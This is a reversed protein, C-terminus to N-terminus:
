QRMKRPVSSGPYCMGRSSESEKECAILFKLFDMMLPGFDQRGRQSLLWVCYAQKAKDKSTRLDHYTLGEKGYKGTEMITLGWEWTSAIGVPMGDAKYGKSSVDSPLVPRQKMAPSSPSPSDPARRKSADTMSMGSNLPSSLLEFESQDGDGEPSETSIAVRLLDLTGDKRAASVLARVHSIQEASFSSMISDLFRLPRHQSRQDVLQSLTPSKLMGQEAKESLDPDLHGQLCWRGKVRFSEWNNPDVEAGEELPKRTLVFRSGIFRDPHDRKIQAAKKGYHIRVANQKSLITEWEARKGEDVMQQLGDPHNSHHLEKSMKKKLYEAILVEYTDHQLHHCLDECEVVSLVESIRPRAPAPEGAEADHLEQEHSRKRSEASDSAEVAKEVLPPVIEKMIEVFDDQKMAAPRWYSMPGDKGTVRRRIPGYSSSSNDGGNSPVHPVSEEAPTPVAPSDDFIPQSPHDGSESMPAHASAPADESTAATPAVVPASESDGVEPQEESVSSPDEMTPYSQSVLDLFQQSRINGQEILDKIGLMEAQPCSLVVKEENTAPRIQEPACRIVQRRHLLVFNRGVKGLIIATGYWKGGTQLKGQVWKQNRWYAVLDGPVFEQAVRPRALLAVRLARDDQMQILATRATTRMAQAKAIGQETLSATASVINLPESLLDEPIHPNKGFVMQHPSYGHVQLMQNKIHAHVVCQLWEEKSSPSHECIIKDLTRSFWGGHSEVKGLQWHAGAAIPRVVTGQLETPVSMNEGLNTRAPDLLLEKPPGMWAVWHEEFLKRLLTSTEQEFFPIMRQFGSAYDVLNLAPVKQNAKWGQLYKIDLGVQQNVESIRRPQAPLPVTPRVQSKCFDCSFDKALRLVQESAQSHKLVRVLDHNPPHGLNRHLKSLVARLEDDSKTHEQAVADIQDWAHAPVTDDVVLPAESTPEVAHRYAPVTSLVAEVFAPPYVSAYKSVSAVGPWSGAVVDHDAHEGDGPCLKSLEQMDAHSVLLRTSKRIFKESGPLRMGYRCMHLKCTYHKRCLSQIEAYSWTKAGTPHEFLARGGRAVQERFLKCCWRIFSRSRAVRVLYEHRDWKTSNLHFWGGEDTCPPCLVLLEPPNEDLAREVRIRDARTSLDYGTKLDYSAADMGLDHAYKAFRPPSFVEQVLCVKAKSRSSLVEQCTKVQSLLQRSQKLTPKWCEHLTSSCDSSPFRQDTHFFKTIIHGSNAPLPTITQKQCVPHEVEHSILVQKTIGDVVVRRNIKNWAPGASSVWPVLQSGSDEQVWCFVDPKVLDSSEPSPPHDSSECQPSEVSPAIPEHCTGEPTEPTCENHGESMMVETFEPQSPAPRSSRDMLNVIYQGASNSKLPVITGDFIQLEDRHFDLSARLSKLATRSILLPAAGNVIAARIMGKRGALWVPLCVSQTSTEVHGNGFRFQHVESFPSPITVGQQHWISTFEKLTDRGIITRGCGSDLVGFGPSSILMVEHPITESEDNYNVKRRLLDMMSLKEGAAAVFEIDTEAEVMAAGSPASTTSSKGAGKPPFKCEKAWHGKRGCRNCTTSKKLEEIEVRFSRRVDRAKQFQRSKQLKNLEQRRDKWTAALVEAVDDENFTEDTATEDTHLEHDMLFQHVDEFEQELDPQLDESPGQVALTEDVLAVARKRVVLDPYCSRLASAIAERKLDGRARAVVVARQEDTLSARHLLIWGRAEEPFAVGTKRNCRDFLESARASWQKMSEGERAKLSFVETLIESLEDVTDLKPFRADLLQWLLADGDKKQYDKPDVHEVAEYAKGSLLTMIYAGRASDSLKDMTMMKNLCWTKWRRYERGDENDGSFGRIPGSESGSAASSSAM